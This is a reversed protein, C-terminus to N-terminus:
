EADKKSAEEIDAYPDVTEPLKMNMTNSVMTELMHLAHLATENLKKIMESAVEDQADLMASYTKEAAKVDSKWEIMNKIETENMEIYPVKDAVLVDISRVEIGKDSDTTM